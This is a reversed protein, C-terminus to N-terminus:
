GDGRSTGKYLYGFFIWATPSPRMTFDIYKAELVTSNASLGGAYLIATLIAGIAYAASADGKRLNHSTWGFGAPPLCLAITYVNTLRVSLTNAIWLQTEKAPALAWHRTRPGM